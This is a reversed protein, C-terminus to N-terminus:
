GGSRCTATRTAGSSTPAAMATSTAPASSTGARVPTSCSARRRRRRRRGDALALRRWRRQALPHRGPRRRQLRRDGGGALGADVTGIDGGGVFATGNMQWLSVEGHAGRWLIDSRGDGNFDATGAISWPADVKALTGGGAYRTGDMQWLVVEGTTGRWLIDARLDGDFDGTGVVTWDPGPNWLTVGDLYDQGDMRWIAVGGDAARFLIDSTGSGDFDRAVAQLSVDRDAFRVVEIGNLNNDGGAGTATWSGDANHVLTTAARTGSFVAIDRGTGGLLISGFGTASTPTTAPAAM